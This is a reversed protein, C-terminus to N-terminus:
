RAVIGWAPMAEGDEELCASGIVSGRPLSSNLGKLTTPAPRVPAALPTGAQLPRRQGYSLSVFGSKSVTLTYRGAPRETLDFIGSDDDAHGAAPSSPPPSSYARAKVPHRQRVRGRTRHHSRDADPRRGENARRIAPRSSRAPRHGSVPRRSALSPRRSHGVAAALAFVIRSVSLARM